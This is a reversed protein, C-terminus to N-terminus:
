QGNLEKLVREYELLTAKGYKVALKACSDAESDDYYVDYCFRRLADSTFKILLVKRNYEALSENLERVPAIDGFPLFLETEENDNM